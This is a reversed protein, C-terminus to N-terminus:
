ISIDTFEYYFQSTIFSCSHLMINIHCRLCDWRIHTCDTRKTGYFLVIKEYFLMIIPINTVMILNCPDIFVEMINIIQQAIYTECGLLSVVNWQETNPNKTIGTVIVSTAKKKQRLVPIPPCVYESTKPGNQQKGYM